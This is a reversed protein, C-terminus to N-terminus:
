LKSPDAGPVNESIAAGLNDPSSVVNPHDADIAASPMSKFEASDPSQVLVTGGLRHVMAAGQAGDSTLGSLIIAIAHQKQDYALSFLFDDIPNEPDWPGKDRVLLMGNSVTVRSYGPLIYITGAKPKTDHTLVQILLGSVKKLIVDMSAPTSTPLHTVVVYAINQELSVNSFFTKLAQLGGASAGIGAIKLADMSNNSLFKM